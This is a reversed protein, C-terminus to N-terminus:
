HSNHKGEKWLREARVFIAAEEGLTDEEITVILEQENQNAVTVKGEIGDVWYFVFGMLILGPIAMVRKNEKVFKM